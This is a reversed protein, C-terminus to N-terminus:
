DKMIKPQQEPGEALKANKQANGMTPRRRLVRPDPQLKDAM